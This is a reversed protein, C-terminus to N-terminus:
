RNGRIIMGRDGITGVAVVLNETVAVDLLTGQEVKFQDYIKWKSGDFRVFFGYSGVLFINSNSSGRIKYLYYNPIEVTAWISDTNYCLNSGCVYVPSNKEFWVSMAKKDPDWTMTDNVGHGSISLLRQDEKQYPKTVTCLITKKGSDEDYVAWVDKIDTTTTSEIKEWKLGDYHVIIGDQGVGYIDDPAHYWLSTVREGTSINRRYSLNAITGDYNYISGIGIWINDNSIAWIDEIGTLPINYQEDRIQIYEWKKGNWHLANYEDSNIYGGIWINDKNIISVCYLVTNREGITDTTWTFNHSTTDLGGNDPPATSDSCSFLIFSLLFFFFITTVFISFSNKRETILNSFTINFLTFFKNTDSTQQQNNNLIFKHRTMKM